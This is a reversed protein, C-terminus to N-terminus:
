ETFEYIDGFQECAPIFIKQPIGYTFNIKKRFTVNCEKKQNSFILPKNKVKIPLDRADGLIYKGIYKNLKDYIGVTGNTHQNVGWISKVSIIKYLKDKATVIYGLYTIYASCTGTSYAYEKNKVNRILAKRCLMKYDQGFTKTLVFLCLIIYLTKRKTIM